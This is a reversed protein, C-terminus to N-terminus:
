ARFSDTLSGLSHVVARDTKRRNLEPWVPVGTYDARFRCREVWVDLERVALIL